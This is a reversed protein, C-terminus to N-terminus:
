AQDVDHLRLYRVKCTLKFELSDIHVATGLLTHGHQIIFLMMYSRLISIELKHVHVDNFDRVFETFLM